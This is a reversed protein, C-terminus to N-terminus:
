SFDVYGSAKLKDWHERAKEKRYELNVIQEAVDGTFRIGSTKDRRKRAREAKDIAHIRDHCHKHLLV